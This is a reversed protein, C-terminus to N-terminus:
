ASIINILDAACKGIKLHDFSVFGEFLCIADTYIRPLSNAIIQLLNPLNELLKEFHAEFGCTGYSSVIHIYAATVETILAQIVSFDGFFLKHVLVAADYANNCGLDLDQSCTAGNFVEGFGQYFECYVHTSFSYAVTLLLVFFVTSQM